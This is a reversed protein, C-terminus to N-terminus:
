LGVERSVEQCLGGSLRTGEVVTRGKVGRRTVREGETDERREEEGSVGREKM